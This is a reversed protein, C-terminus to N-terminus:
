YVQIENNEKCVSVYCFCTLYNRSIIKLVKLYKPLFPGYASM